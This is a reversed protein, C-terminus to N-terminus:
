LLSNTKCFLSTCSWTTDWMHNLCHRERSHTMDWVFSDYFSLTEYPHIFRHTTASTHPSSTSRREYQLTMQFIWTERTFPDHRMYSHTTNRYWMHILWTVYIFSDHRQREYSQTKDCKHILWTETEWIFSDHRVYSQTMTFTHQYTKEWISQDYSCDMDRKHFLWTECTFSDHRVRSRTMDWVHVLWTECTFLDHRVHSRTMDWIFLDDGLYALVEERMHVLWSSGIDRKHIPWTVYIFCDIDTMESGRTHILWRERTHNLWQWLTSTSRREFPHTM